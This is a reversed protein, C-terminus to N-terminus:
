NERRRTMPLISLLLWGILCAWGFAIHAVGLLRHASMPPGEDFRFLFSSGMGAILLALAAMNRGLTHLWSTLPKAYEGAGLAMALQLFSLGLGILVVCTTQALLGMEALEVATVICVVM